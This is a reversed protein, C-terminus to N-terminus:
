SKKKKKKQGREKRRTFLSADKMIIYDWNSKSSKLPTNTKSTFQNYPYLPFMKNLYFIRWM